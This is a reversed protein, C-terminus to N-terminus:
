VEGVLQLASVRPWYLQRGVLVLYSEHGRPHGFSSIGYHTDRVVRAKWPDAGPPVVEVIEGAFENARTRWEVLDGLKM